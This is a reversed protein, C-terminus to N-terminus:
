LVNHKSDSRIGEKLKIRKEFRRILKSIARLGHIYDGNMFMKKYLTKVDIIMNLDYIFMISKYTKSPQAYRKYLTKRRTFQRFSVKKVTKNSCFMCVTTLEIESSEFDHEKYLDYVYRFRRYIQNYIRLWTDEEKDM